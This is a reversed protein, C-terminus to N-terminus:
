PCAYGEAWGLMCAAPGAFFLVAAGFAAMALGLLLAVRGGLSFSPPWGEIGVPISRGFSWVLGTVICALGLIRVAATIGWLLNAAIFAVLFLVGAISEVRNRNM